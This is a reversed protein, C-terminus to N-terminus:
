LTAPNGSFRTVTTSAVLLASLVLAAAISHIITGSRVGLASSFRAQRGQSISRGLIYLTDQGPTLNLLIGTIIFLFFNQIGFM